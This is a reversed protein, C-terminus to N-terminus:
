LYASLYNSKKHSTCLSLWHPQFDEWIEKDTDIGPFEGVIEMTMVEADTLSPAFGRTRPPSETQIQQSYIM